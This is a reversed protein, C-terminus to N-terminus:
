RKFVKVSLNNESKIFYMGSSFGALSIVLNGTEPKLSKVCIGLQNYVSISGTKEETQVHLQEDFLTPFVKFNNKDPNVMGTIPPTVYTKLNPMEDLTLVYDSAFMKKWLDLSNYKASRTFDGNWPMFWSWGAGDKILNDVDPFSGSESITVMKKGGYRSTMDNFELIQSSHDGEKYIDRGVIDVYEDGPYWEDDNPERTWVWILNKLGHYNVMRDFMVQWLKKCPAAGKAGWWFWGGAAEHLPRWLIPIKNDQFRMLLNATYDIDAIMAKYEASNVDTIKSIDFTTKDTYFEETKRSPDRWHWSFAPIGNKDYLAKVENYPKNEDYWSYNRGCFLFDFGVLAPSKGTNTKLWNSEPMDMVGSIIKKGYNDYLFQYLKGAETTPNPTVMAKNISFKTSPDVKEFEIYDINIWGWSKTIEIKHAGAALKVFSVLKLKIYSANQNTAFTISTGDVVFNNAKYGNPAAVQIYINYSAETAFNLNFTLNGEKQEVIFSGSASALATKIAGGSLTASEAEFKQSFGVSAIFLFIVLITLTKQM